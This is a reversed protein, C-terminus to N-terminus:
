LSGYDAARRDAVDYGAEWANDKQEQAWTLFDELSMVGLTVFHHVTEADYYLFMKPDYTM